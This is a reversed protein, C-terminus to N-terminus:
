NRLAEFSGCKVPLEVNNLEFYTTKKIGNRGIFMTTRNAFDHAKTRLDQEPM